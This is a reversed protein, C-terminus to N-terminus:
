NVKINNVLYPTLCEDDILSLLKPLTSSALYSNCRDKEDNTFKYIANIFVLPLNEDDLRKGEAKYYDKSFELIYSELYEEYFSKSLSIFLQTTNILPNREIFEGKREKQIEMKILEKILRLLDLKTNKIACKYFIMLGLENLTQSKDRKLRNDLYLLISAVRNLSLQYDSWIEGLQILFGIDKSLIVSGSGEGGKDDSTENISFYSAL